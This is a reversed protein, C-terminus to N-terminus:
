QLHFPCFYVQHLFTVTSKLISKFGEDMGLHNYVLASHLTGISKISAEFSWVNPLPLALGKLKFMSLSFTESNSICVHTLTRLYPM